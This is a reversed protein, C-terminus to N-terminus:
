YNELYKLCERYKEVRKLDKESIIGLRSLDLNHKLDEIKVDRAIKNNALSKIYEFYDKDKEYKLLLLAKIVQNDFNENQLEEITTETDELIDHLLAVIVRKEENFQEAIHWPHFVYPINGKDVQNKQKKFMFNIAKKINETYLM